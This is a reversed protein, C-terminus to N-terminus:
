RKVKLLAQGLWLVAALSLCCAVLVPGFPQDWWLALSFASLYALLGFALAWVLTWRWSQAFVFAVWAPIFVLAFAAMLGISATALALASAALLDFSLHYRWEPLGNARYYDPFFRARLLRPSLWPLLGLTLLFLGIATWLHSTGTFYLQGDTVAHALEDGHPSNASILLALSWGLLIMVAYADNGLGKRLNKVGAGLVAGLASGALLPLGLAAGSLAGAGALQALGLAALWEERLRLYVGILPLLLALLLGTFLPLRFLPDFLIELM